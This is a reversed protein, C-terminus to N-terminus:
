QKTIERVHSKFMEGRHNYNDFLDFSACAPSLLVVDGRNASENAAFVADEISGTDYINPVIDEFAEILKDNDLGMCILTHVKEKVLDYLLTYDNGKDIGGAIWVVPRKVSELAYWVADINTAKSDNIYLVDDVCCVFEVRHEVGGFNEITMRIVDDNVGVLMAVIASAMINSVNHLGKIKIKDIDLTLSKGNVNVIIDNGSMFADSIDNKISYCLKQVDSTLFGMEKKILDDDCCYVFSDSATQNNCVRFKSKIYNDMKYDYRDLHDPTINTIISIDAKFDFMGDLQFSSIELVYWDYNERAVQLAYSKGINGGLGVNFGAEKLINYVLMTTTTKGNSGTICITKASSFRKAFELESIVSINRKLINQILEISDPIGPSKIVIDANYIKETTHQGQEFAIEEAELMKQYKADLVGKDSLFVDYGMKKALIASGCGSEGGGLVVVREKNM